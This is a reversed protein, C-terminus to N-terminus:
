LLLNDGFMLAQSVPEISFTSVFFLLHVTVYVLSLQSSEATRAEDTPTGSGESLYVQSVLHQWKRFTNKM